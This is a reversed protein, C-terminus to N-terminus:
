KAERTDTGGKVSAVTVKYPGAGTVLWRVYVVHHGPVSQLKVTAPERRQEKPETFFPEDSIQATLVKGGALTVRDAPTLNRAADIALRSPITKRNEIIATVQFLDGGFPKVTASQVGVQPMQDAHYLSFAMNRHCEEELLFSPPQRPWNKKMGGVEIKGYTPHDVEHWPVFGEGFLLLKDFKAQDESSGFAGASERRFFNHGTFLENTFVTVGQTAYLWDVEGGFVEYLEEAINMYKYGPLMEEGRKGLINMMRIDAADFKDSKDGPGRLIMGGANHYSQAGAINRHAAVFDAVLRNELISFPYRHAGNQIYQPQWNWGWDRNPDYYGEGDENVEGDGDNDIGERGLLRYQGKQGEKAPIMLEPYDPHPIHTGNEDKVRMQTIHGDKDLDDPPDEDVLGDRDDDFPRQGSRPSHTTAAQHLHVDRSDPSMMPMLYFTREQLLKAIAPNEAASELLYWATYLVVETAQIENAHIAGDIWMASKADAKARDFMEGTDSITLVWMERKGFSQGLSELKALRPYAAALDKLIQTSEAHDHYVNWRPSVKPKAPAGLAKYPFQPPPDAALLSASAVVFWLAVFTGLRVVSSGFRHTMLNSVLTTTRPDGFSLCFFPSLFM